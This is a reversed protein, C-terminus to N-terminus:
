KQLGKIADICKVIKGITTPLYQQLQKEDRSRAQKLFDSYLEKFEKVLPVNKKGNDTLMAEQDRLLIKLMEELSQARTAIQEPNLKPVKNKVEDVFKLLRQKVPETYSLMLHAVRRLYESIPLFM